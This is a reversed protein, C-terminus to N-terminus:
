DNLVAVHDVRLGFTSLKGTLRFRIQSDKELLNAFSKSICIEGDSFEKPVKKTRIQYSCGQVTGRRVEYKVAEVDISYQSGSYSTYYAPYSSSILLLIFFYVLVPVSFITVITGFVEKKFGYKRYLSIAALISIPITLAISVIQCKELFEGYPMFNNAIGMAVLGAAGLSLLLWNLNVRVGV